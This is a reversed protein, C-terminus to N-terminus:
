KPLTVVADGVRLLPLYFLSLHIHMAAALLLLRQAM